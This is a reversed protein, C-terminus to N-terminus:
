YKFFYFHFKNFAKLYQMLVTIYNTKRRKNFEFCTCLWLCINLILANLIFVVPYHIFKVSVAWWNLRNIDTIYQQCKEMKCWKYISFSCYSSHACALARASCTCKCFFIYVTPIQSHTFTVIFFRLLFFSYLSYITYQEYKYIQIRLLKFVVCGHDVM